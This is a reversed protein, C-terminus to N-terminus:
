SVGKRDDRQRAVHGVLGADHKDLCDAQFWVWDSLPREESRFPTGCGSCVPITEVPLKKWEGPCYVFRMLGGDTTEQWPYASPMSNDTVQSPEHQPFRVNTIFEIRKRTSRMKELRMRATARSEPTGIPFDGPTPLRNM